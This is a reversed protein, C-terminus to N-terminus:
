LAEVLSKINEMWGDVQKKFRGRFILREIIKGLISYPVEYDSTYTLQTGVKTPKM